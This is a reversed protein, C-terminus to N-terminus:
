LDAEKLMKTTVISVETATIAPDGGFPLLDPNEYLKLVYIEMALTFLKQAKEDSITNSEENNMVSRLEKVKNAVEEENMQDMETIDYSSM